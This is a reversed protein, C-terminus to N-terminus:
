VTTRTGISGQAPERYVMYVNSRQYHSPGEPRPAHHFGMSEYLTLAPTLKRNSELFLERAGTERFREIAAALLRRGIRLGQHRETVAMKALEFRGEGAALLACTGVIEEGLRALLIFGGPALINGEPDSLVEEDLPEVQFHKELWEVNLRKFDDRYRPQFPIIEVAAPSREESRLRM